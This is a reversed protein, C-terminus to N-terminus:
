GTLISARGDAAFEREQLSPPQYIKRKQQIRHNKGPPAAVAESLIL